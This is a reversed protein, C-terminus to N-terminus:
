DSAGGFVLGREALRDMLETVGAALPEGSRTLIEGPERAPPAFIRNVRTPSGKLGLHEREVEVDDATWVEVPQRSAALLAMLSARRIFSCKETVTVCAPLAGELLERGDERQRWARIYREDPSIQDMACVYTLESYNLRRSIGPGVQGTDGDISQKGCVVLDVPEERDIRRIAAALAYTTALTDAGAFARDSLLIARNAGFGLAKRLAEEAQPPGMSLVTVGGGHEDRARLAAELAFLDYPNIVSPIGSRVLSGTQPDIRVQTTDPVHKICVLCHLPM